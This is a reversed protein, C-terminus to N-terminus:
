IFVKNKGNSGSMFVGNLIDNPGGIQTSFTM